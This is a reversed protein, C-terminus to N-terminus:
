KLTKSEEQSEEPSEELVAKPMVAEIDTLQMKSLTILPIINHVVNLSNSYYKSMLETIKIQIVKEDTITRVNHYIANNKITFVEIEAYAFKLTLVPIWEKPHTLVGTEELFERAMANDSSENLEIHGGIGNLSGKQWDPRNKKILVIETMLDNFAFGIVYKKM